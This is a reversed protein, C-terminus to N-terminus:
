ARAAFGWAVDGINARHIGIDALEHDSLMSLENLTQHYTRFQSWRRTVNATLNSLTQGISVGGSARDTRSLYTM